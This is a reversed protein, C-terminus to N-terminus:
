FRLRGLLPMLLPEVGHAQIERMMGPLDIGPILHPEADIPTIMTDWHCPVIFRPRLLEVIEEVYRPRYKRGAACLCVVDARLGV